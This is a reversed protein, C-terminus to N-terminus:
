VQAPQNVTYTITQLSVQNSTLLQQQSGAAVQTIWLVKSSGTAVFVVHLNTPSAATNVSPATATKGGFTHVRAAADAGSTASWDGSTTSWSVRKATNLTAYVPAVGSTYSSEVIWVENANTKIYQPGQDLAELCAYVGM